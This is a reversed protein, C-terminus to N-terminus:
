GAAGAVAVEGAFTHAKYQSKLVRTGALVEIGIVHPGALPEVKAHYRYGTHGDGFQPCAELVDPRSLGRTALGVPQGDVTVRVEIPNTKSWAWGEVKLAGDAEQAVTDIVCFSHDAPAPGDEVEEYHKMTANVYINPYYLPLDQPNELTFRKSKGRSHTHVFLLATVNLEQAYEQARRIEEDSDNHEFLIYKWVLQQPQGAIVRPADRM